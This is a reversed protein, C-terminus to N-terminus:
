SNASWYLMFPELEVFQYGAAQVKDVISEHHATYGDVYVFTKNDAKVYLIKGAVRKRSPNVVWLGRKPEAYQAITRHGDLNAVLAETPTEPQPQTTEVPNETKVRGCTRSNHGSNGCTKCHRM